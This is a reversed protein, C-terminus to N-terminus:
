FEDEIDGVIEELVDELTVMGVIKGEQDKVMALHQSNAIFLKLMTNLNTDTGVYLIPRIFQEITLDRSNSALAVMEKFNVYGIVGDVSDTNSVPYRTHFNNKAIEFNVEFPINTRLYIIWERPIMISQLKTERLKIANIIISEQEAEIIDKTRAVRALAKIDAMSLSSGEQKDGLSKSIIEALFILPRLIKISARLATTVWPAIEENYRVGLVKPIIETGFLIVITFITSFLWLREDGYISGFAGGAVTAGGTHAITNLILIAAIPRSINQKMDLLVSAYSRGQEKLMELRVPDLSLLVAEALSCLFSMVVATLSSLLLMIM